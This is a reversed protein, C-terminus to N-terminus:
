TGVAAPTRRRSWRGDLRARTGAIESLQEALSQAERLIANEDLGVIRRDDLVVRGGVVTTHVNVQGGSYVLTSVPDHVPISRAHLPDFLFLDARKGPELSGFDDRGLAAAGGSTAARLADAATFIAPDRWAVKPLLAGVKLAELMDQSNNSAAGDAGLGVTVGLDLLRPIPPVGSGLYMNSVPNYSVKGDHRALIACDDETLQVCHAHLVDPGLFGIRELFPLTRQGFRRLSEDSDFAVEDTHLSLRLGLETALRRAARLSDEDLAWTAGPALWIRPPGYARALRVCDALQDEIPPLVMLVNEAQRDRLGRGLIGQIGVDDFAQLIADYIETDAHDVMYDFITTCGSRLSEVCGLAAAVYCLRPTLHPISPLTCVDLWEMLPLDDGLGKLLTQYLHTHTDVLGPFILMREADITRRAEFRGEIEHRRGVAMISEGEVVVGGNAIVLGDPRATVITGGLILLDVTTM